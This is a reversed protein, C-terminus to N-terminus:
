TLAPFGPPLADAPPIDPGIRRMMVDAIGRQNIVYFAAIQRYKYCGVAPDIRSL